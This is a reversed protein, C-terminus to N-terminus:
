KFYPGEIPKNLILPSNKFEPLERNEAVGLFLSVALTAAGPRCCWHPFLVPRHNPRKPMIPYSPIPGRESKKKRGEGERHGRWPLGRLFM